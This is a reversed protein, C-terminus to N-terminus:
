CDEPHEEVVAWDHGIPAAPLPHGSRVRVRIGTPTGLVNMQEYTASTPAPQGANHTPRSAM